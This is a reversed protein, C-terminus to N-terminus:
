RREIINGHRKGKSLRFEGRESFKDITWVTCEVLIGRMQEM